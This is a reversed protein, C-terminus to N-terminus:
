KGHFILLMVLKSNKHHIDSKFIIFLPMIKAEARLNRNYVALFTLNTTETNIYIHQENHKSYFQRQNFDYKQCPDHSM